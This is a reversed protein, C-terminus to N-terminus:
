PLTWTVIDGPRYDSVNRSPPLSVGHRRFFVELNRVRRHDINADPAKLGWNHPYANWALRLDEHVLVQLDVGAYRYARVIVDSCVGREQPVDGGPYRLQTYAPDYALTVGIQQRAGDIVKDLLVGADFKSDALKSNALTVVPLFFLLLTFLRKMRTLCDL